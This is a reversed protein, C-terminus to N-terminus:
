IRLTSVDYDRLKLIAPMEEGEKYYEPSEVFGCIAYLNKAAINTPEYSVWCLDAQGAPYTKVFDIALKFAQKGYGKGQYRKDIMFRWIFYQKRLIDPDEEGLFHADFGLMIFGIPKNGLYIGFPYVAQNNSLAVYAHALSLANSAVYEEQDKRVKLALIESANAKTIKELHLLKNTKNNTM